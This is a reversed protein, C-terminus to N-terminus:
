SSRHGAIKRRDIRRHRLWPGRRPPSGADHGRSRLSVPAIVRRGIVVRCPVKGEGSSRVLGRGRGDVYPWRGNARAWQRIKSALSSSVGGAEAIQPLSVTSGSAYRAAVSALVEEAGAPKVIPKPM